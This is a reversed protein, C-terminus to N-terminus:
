DSFPLEWIDNMKRWIWLCQGNMLMEEDCSYLDRIADFRDEVTHYSDLLKKAKIKGYRSVGLIGDTADGVILQYQFNYMAEENSIFFEEQKVPNYHRGPIMKLDKDTTVIIPVNGDEQKQYLMSRVGLMDDAECGDSWNAQWHDVLHQKVVKEWKPRQVDKRRRKYEPYVKYRFNNSGSLWGEYETSNTKALIDEILKDARSCPIFEDTEDEASFAARFCLIDLDLLALM